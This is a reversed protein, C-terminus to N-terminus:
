TGCRQRDSRTGRERRLRFAHRTEGQEGTRLSGAGWLRQEQGVPFARSFRAGNSCPVQNEAKSVIGGTRRQKQSQSATAALLSVPGWLSDLVSLKWSLPLSQGQTIAGLWSTASPRVQLDPSGQGEPCANIHTVWNERGSHSLWAQFCSTEQSGPRAQAPGLLWCWSGPCSPGRRLM